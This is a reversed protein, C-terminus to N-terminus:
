KPAILPKNMNGMPELELSIDFGMCHALEALTRLELPERGWILDDVQQTTMEMDNALKELTLGNEVAILYAGQVAAMVEAVFAAVYEERKVNQEPTAM